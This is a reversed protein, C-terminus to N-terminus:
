KKERLKSPILISTILDGYKKQLVEIDDGCLAIFRYSDSGDEANVLVYGVKELNAALTKTLEYAEYWDSKYNFFYHFKSSGNMEINVEIKRDTAHKIFAFKIDNEKFLKISNLAWSLDNEDFRHDIFIGRCEILIDNFYEFIVDSSFTSYRDCMERYLPILVPEDVRFTYYILQEQYEAFLIKFDKFLQILLKFAMRDDKVKALDKISIDKRKLIEDMWHVTLEEDKMLLTYDNTHIYGDQGFCRIRIGDEVFMLELYPSILLTYIQGGINIFSEEKFDPLPLDIVSNNKLVIRLNVTTKEVYKVGNKIFDTYFSSTNALKRNQLPEEVGYVEFAGSGHPLDSWGTIFAVDFFNINDIQVPKKKFKVLYNSFTPNIFRFISLIYLDTEVSYKYYKFKKSGSNKYQYDLEMPYTDLQKLQITHMQTEFNYFNLESQTFHIRIQGKDRFDRNWIWDNIFDNLEKSLTNASLNDFIKM